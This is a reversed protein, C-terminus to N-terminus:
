SVIGSVNIILKAAWLCPTGKGEIISASKIIKIKSINLSLSILIGLKHHLAIEIRPAITRPSAATEAPITDGIITITTAVLAIHLKINEWIEITLAM